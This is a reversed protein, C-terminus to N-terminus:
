QQGTIQNWLTHIVSGTHEAFDGPSDYPYSKDIHFGLQPTSAKPDIPIHTSPIGHPDGKTHGRFNTAGPHFKDIFDLGAEKVYGSGKADLVSFLAATSANPNSANFISGSAVCTNGCNGTVKADYGELPTGAAGAVTVAGNEGKNTDWVGEYTKGDQTVSIGHAGLTADSTQDGALHTRTFNGDKDTTGVYNNQCTSTNEKGCGQLWIDLGTPDTLTTPNNRVYAYKNLTQPDELHGGLPDPTMFRGMTSADYRAGFYDLGSESDREKGAFKYNPTCTFTVQVERGFPLFDADYCPTTQGAQVITRSSGLMDEEYYDITGTSITRMAIRKGGFFVYENTINGSLDSEDLIETGAGYWYAKGSSKLIRNGDGDYKYTVGGGITIESEANYTYSYAGDGLMNGSADYSYGTTSLQNNATPSVSLNDNTCGTGYGSIPTMAYMNAWQDYTYTDGWCNQSQSSTQASVIRNVQDYAFSQTRGPTRNNTIGLVNGNDGAGLNFNYQL